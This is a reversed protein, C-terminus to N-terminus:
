QSSNFLVKLSPEPETYIVYNIFYLQGVPNAKESDKAVVKTVVGIYRTKQYKKPLKTIDHDRKIVFGRYLSTIRATEQCKTM